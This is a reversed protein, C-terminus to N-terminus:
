DFPTKGLPNDYSLFYILAIVVGIVALIILSVVTLFSRACGRKKKAKPTAPTVKVPEDAPSEKSDVFDPTLTDVFDEDTFGPQTTVEKADLTEHVSKPTRGPTSRFVPVPLIWDSVTIDDPKTNDSM